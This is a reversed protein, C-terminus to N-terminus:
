LLYSGLQIRGIMEDGWMVHGITGECKYAPVEFFPCHAYNAFLVNIGFSAIVNKPSQVDLTASSMDPFM